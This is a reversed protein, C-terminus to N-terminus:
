TGPPPCVSRTSFEDLVVVVVVIVIIWDLSTENEKALVRWGVGPLQIMSEGGFTARGM